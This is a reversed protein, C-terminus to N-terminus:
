ERHLLFPLYSAGLRRTQGSLTQPRKGERGLNEAPPRGQGSTETAAGDEVVGVRVERVQVDQGVGRAGPVAPGSCVLPRGRRRARAVADDSVGGAPVVPPPRGQGDSM